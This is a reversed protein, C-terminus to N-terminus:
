ITLLLIPVCIAPWSMRLPDSRLRAARSPASAPANRVRDSAPAAGAWRPPASQAASADRQRARAGRLGIAAFARHLLHDPGGSGLEGDLRGGAGRDQLLDGDEFARAA